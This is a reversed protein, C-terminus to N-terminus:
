YSLSSVSRAHRAQPASPTNSSNHIPPAVLISWQKHFLWLFLGVCLCLSLTNGWSEISSM